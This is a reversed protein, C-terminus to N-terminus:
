SNNGRTQKIDDIIISIMTAIPVALIMGSIGALKGGLIAAIIIIIPHLGVSKEMVKPVIIYNEFQQILFYLIFALVAMSPSVTFAIIVAPIASLIPGIYPILEFFGALIALVLAYPVGILSLGIFSLLGVIFGLSIQGIFWHGLKREIKKIIRLCQIQSDKPAVAKVFKEIGNNELVLYFSIVAILVLSFIGGVLGMAGSLIFYTANKLSNSVNILINQFDSASFGMDYSNEILYNFDIAKFFGPLETALQNVERAVIPSVIYLLLGAVLGVSLFIAGAGFIRPINREKEMKDVAPEITLAILVSIFVTFIIDKIFFLFYIIFCVAFFRFISAFSIDLTQKQNNM